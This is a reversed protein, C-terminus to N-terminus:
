VSSQISNRCYNNVSLCVTRSMFRRPHMKSLVASRSAIIRIGCSIRTYPVACWKLDRTCILSFPWRGAHLLRNNTVMQMPLPTSRVNQRIRPVVLMKALTLCHDMRRLNGTRRRDHFLNVKHYLWDRRNSRLSDHLKGLFTETLFCSITDFRDGSFELHWGSFATTTRVGERLGCFTKCSTTQLCVADNPWEKSMRAETKVRNRCFNTPLSTNYGEFDTVEKLNQPPSAASLQM